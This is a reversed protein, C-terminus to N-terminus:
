GGGEQKQVGAMVWTGWAMSGWLITLCAISALIIFGGLGMDASFAHYAMGVALGGHISMSAVAGTIITTHCATVIGGTVLLAAITFLGGWVWGPFAQEVVSAQWGDRPVFLYGAAYAWLTVTLATLKIASVERPLGPRWSGRRTM